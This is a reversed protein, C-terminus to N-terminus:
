CSTVQCFSQQNIIEFLDERNIQGSNPDASPNSNVIYNTSGIQVNCSTRRCCSAVSSALAEILTNSIIQQICLDSNGVSQGLSSLCNSLRSIYLPTRINNSFPFHTWSM